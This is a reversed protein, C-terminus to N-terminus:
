APLTSIGLTAWCTMARVAAETTAKHAPVEFINIGGNALAATEGSPRTMSLCTVCCCASLVFSTLTTSCYRVWGTNESVWEAMRQATETNTVFTSSFGMVVHFVHETCLSNSSGFLIIVEQVLLLEGIDLDELIVGWTDYIDGVQSSKLNATLYQITVGSQQYKPM